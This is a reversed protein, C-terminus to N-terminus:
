NRDRAHGLRRLLVDVFLGEGVHHEGFARQKIDAAGSRAHAAAFCRRQAHHERCGTENVAFFVDADNRGGTAVRHVRRGIGVVRVLDGPGVGQKFVSGCDCHANARLPVDLAPLVFPQPDDAAVARHVIDSELRQRSHERGAHIDLDDNEVRLNVRIGAALRRGTGEFALIGLHAEVSFDIGPFFSFRFSSALMQM